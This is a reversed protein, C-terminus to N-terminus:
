KVTAREDIDGDCVGFDGYYPDADSLSVSTDVDIDGARTSPTALWDYEHLGHSTHPYLTAISQFPGKLLNSYLVGISSNSRYATNTLWKEM